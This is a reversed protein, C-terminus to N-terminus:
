ATMHGRTFLVMGKLFKGKFKKQASVVTRGTLTFKLVNYTTIRFPMQTSPRIMLTFVNPM